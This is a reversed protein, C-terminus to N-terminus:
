LLWFMTWRGTVCHTVFLWTSNLDWHDELFWTLSMRRRWCLHVMCTHFHLANCLGLGGSYSVRLFVIGLIGSHFSVSRCCRWLCDRRATDAAFEIFSKWDLLWSRSWASFFQISIERLAGVARFFELPVWFALRADSMFSGGTCSGAFRGADTLHHVSSLRDRFWLLIDSAIAFLNRCDAHAQPSRSAPYYVLCAVAPASFSLLVLLFPM